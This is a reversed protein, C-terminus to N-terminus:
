HGHSDGMEGKQLEAKLTFGGKRVYTEGSELGSIIQVMTENSLGLSVARPVFADAEQIFVVTNGEFIEIATKPVAVEVQKSSTAIEGIIFLGPKWIHDKNQVIVRATATRTVNDIVPSIYDITSKIRPMDPGASIEVLQNERVYPLDKQYLSLLAWVTTVDAILFGHESDDIVEGRTLHKEIVMGDILSKVEFESLSENGEIIALTEGKEVSDGIHKFVQKVIGSFRPQIHALNDPPIIIEGPLSVYKKIEGSGAQALEIGFEEIEEHSLEVEEHHVEIAAVTAELEQHVDETNCASFTIMAGALGSIIILKTIRYKM